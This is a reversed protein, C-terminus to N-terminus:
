LRKHLEQLLQVFRGTWRFGNQMPFRRLRFFFGAEGGGAEVGGKWIPEQEFHTSTPSFSYRYLYLLLLKIFM